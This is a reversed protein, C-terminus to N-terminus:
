AFVDDIAIELGPMAQTRLVTGATFYGAPEYRDASLRLVEIARLDPEVIWYESVGCREYLARKVLRDREPNSPSVIEVLLDPAGRLREPHVAPSGARVFVLDPQVVDEPTLEVDLPAPLVRGLSGAQAHGYLAVLLRTAIEQHRVSPAAAMYIEGRILEARTSEPLAMLDAVTKRPRHMTQGM